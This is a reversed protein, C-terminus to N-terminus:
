LHLTIAKIYIRNSLGLHFSSGRHCSFEGFPLFGVNVPQDCGFARVVIRVIATQRKIAAAIHVRDRERVAAQAPIETVTQEREIRLKHCNKRFLSRSHAAPASALKRLLPLLLITRCAAPFRSCTMACFHTDSLVPFVIVAHLAKRTLFATNEPTEPLCIRCDPPNM